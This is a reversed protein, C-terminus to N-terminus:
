CGFKFSATEFLQDLRIDIRAEAVIFALTSTEKIDMIERKQDFQPQWVGSPAQLTSIERQSKDQWSQNVKQHPHHRSRRHRPRKQSSIKV